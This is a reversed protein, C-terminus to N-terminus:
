RVEGTSLGYWAVAKDAVEIGAPAAFNRIIPLLSGTALSPAEDTLPWRDSSSEALRLLVADGYPTHYAVTARYRGVRELASAPLRSVDFAPSEDAERLGVVARNM